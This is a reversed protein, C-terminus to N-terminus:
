GRQIKKNGRLREQRDKGLDNNEDRGGKVKDRIKRVEKVIDRKEQGKRERDSM